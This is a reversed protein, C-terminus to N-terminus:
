GSPQPVKPVTIHLKRQRGDWYATGGLGRALDELGNLTAPDQAGDGQDGQLQVSVVATDALEEAGLVIASDEQGSRDAVWLIGNFLLKLFAVPTVTLRAQVDPQVEVSVKKRRALRQTLDVMMGLTEGLAFHAPDHDAAHAFANFQQTLHEGREVQEQVVGLSRPLKDLFGARKDPDLDLIDQMLGGAENITALVNKIEHTYSAAVRGFFHADTDVPAM